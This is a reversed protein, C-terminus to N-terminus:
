KIQMGSDILYEAAEEVLQYVETSNYENATSVLIQEEVIDLVSEVLDHLGTM